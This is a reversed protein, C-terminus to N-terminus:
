CERVCFQGDSSLWSPSSDAELNGSGILRSDLRAREAATKQPPEALLPLRRRDCMGTRENRFPRPMFKPNMEIQRYKMFRIVMRLGLEM